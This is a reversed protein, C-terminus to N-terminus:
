WKLEKARRLIRNIPSNHNIDIVTPEFTDFWNNIDNKMSQCVKPDEMAASLWGGIAEDQKIM